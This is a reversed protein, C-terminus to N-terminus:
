FYLDVARLTLVDINGLALTGGEGGAAAATFYIEVASVEASTERVKKEEVMRASVLLGRLNGLIFLVLARRQLVDRILGRM